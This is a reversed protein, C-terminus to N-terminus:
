GAILGSKKLKETLEAIADLTEGSTHGGNVLLRNLTHPHVGIIQAARVQTLGSKKLTEKFETLVSETLKMLRTYM